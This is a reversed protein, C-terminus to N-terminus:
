YHTEAWAGRASGEGRGRPHGELVHGPVRVWASVKPRDKAAGLSFYIFVPLLTVAVKAGAGIVSICALQGFGPPPLPAYPPLGWPPILCM